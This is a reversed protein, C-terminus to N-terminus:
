DKVQTERPRKFYFMMRVTAVLEWGHSGFLNLQAQVKSAKDFSMEEVLYEWKM